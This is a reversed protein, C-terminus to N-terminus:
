GPCNTEPRRRHPAPGRRRVSARLMVRFPDPKKKPWQEAMGLVGWESYSVSGAGRPQCAMEAPYTRPLRNWKKENQGVELTAGREECVRGREHRTVCATPRGALEERNAESENPGNGRGPDADDGDAIGSSPAVRGASSIVMTFQAAHCAVRPSVLSFIWRGM